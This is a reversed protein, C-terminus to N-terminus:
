VGLAVAPEPRRPQVIREALRAERRVRSVAGRGRIAGGVIALGVASHEVRNAVVAASVGTPVVHALHQIERVGEFGTALGVALLPGSQGLPYGM